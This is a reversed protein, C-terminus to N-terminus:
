ARYVGGIKVRRIPTERKEREVPGFSGTSRLTSNPTAGAASVDGNGDPSRAMLRAAHAAKNVNVAALANPWVGAPSVIRIRWAPRVSRTTFTIRVSRVGSPNVRSVTQSAFVPSTKVSVSRGAPFEIATEVASGGSARVGGAGDRARTWDSGGRAKVRGAGVRASTEDYAPIRVAGGKLGTTAAGVLDGTGSRKTSFGEGAITL